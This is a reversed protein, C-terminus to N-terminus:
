RFKQVGLATYNNPTPSGDYNVDMNVVNEIIGIGIYRHGPNLMNARHGPSALWSQMLDYAQVEVRSSTTTRRVLNESRFDDIGFLYRSINCARGYVPSEHTFYRLEAMEEVKFRAAMSISPCLELLPVGARAREINTYYFLQLEIESIGGNTEYAYIWLAIEEENLRREYLLVAAFRDFFQVAGIRSGNLYINTNSNEYRQLFEERTYQRGNFELMPVSGLVSMSHGLILFYLICIILSGKITKKM